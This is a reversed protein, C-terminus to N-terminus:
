IVSFSPPNFRQLFVILRQFHYIHTYMIFFPTQLIFGCNVWIALWLESNISMNNLNMNILHIEKSLHTEKRGWDFSFGLSGSLWM